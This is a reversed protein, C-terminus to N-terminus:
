WGSCEVGVAGLITGESLGHYVVVLNKRALCAEPLHRLTPMIRTMHRPRANVIRLELPLEPCRVLHTLDSILVIFVYFGVRYSTRPNRYLLRWGGVGGVGGM